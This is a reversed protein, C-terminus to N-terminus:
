LSINNQVSPVYYLKVFKTDKQNREKGKEWSVGNSPGLYIHFNVHSFMSDPEGEITMCNQWGVLRLLGASRLDQHCRPSFGSIRTLNERKGSKWFRSFLFWSKWYKEREMNSINLLGYDINKHLFLSLFRLQHKM